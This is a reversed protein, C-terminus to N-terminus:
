KKATTHTTRTKYEHTRLNALAKRTDNANLVSLIKFILERGMEERATAVEPSSEIVENPNLTITRTTTLTQPSIVKKGKNTILDITATYTFTYITAQANSVVNPDNHTFSSSLVRLTILAQSPADALKINASELADRFQTEFQGYSDNAQYYIHHLPTPLNQTNYVRFGCASLMASLAILIFYKTIKEQM